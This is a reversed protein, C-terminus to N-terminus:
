TLVFETIYCVGIIGASGAQNTGDGSVAGGGGAGYNGTNASIGSSHGAGAVMVTGWPEGLFSPAGMGASLLAGAATAWGSSGGNGFINLDGNTATGGNGGANVTAAASSAAGTGGLGPNATLTVGTGAPTFTSASADGGNNAGATGAIGAAGLVVAANAGINAATYTKRCYGGSGGGGAGGGQGAAGSAAGGGGAGSGQLEVICYVMGTTPTYTSTSTIVQAIVSLQKSQSFQVFTVPDTGVAAVTATEVYSRGANVTGNIVFTYGGLFESPADMSTSRTLVWNSAGSGLTTVTYMGNQLTSAQDKILIVDNLAATYGDIAFAAQTTANTLTAGVGSTGNNYTVTLATTSAAMSAPKPNLGQAVTDVYGKSAAQLATSPSSTNLILAGTMTAGAKAVYPAAEPGNVANAVGTM